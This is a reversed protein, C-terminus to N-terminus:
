IVRKRVFLTVCKDTWKMVLQSSEAIEPRTLLREYEIKGADFLQSDEVESGSGEPCVSLQFPFRNREISVWFSTPDKEDPSLVGGEGFSKAVEQSELESSTIPQSSLHSPGPLSTDDKIPM